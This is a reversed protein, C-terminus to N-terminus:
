FYANEAGYLKAALTEAEKIVGEPRSLFDLDEMCALDLKLCSEGLLKAMELNGQGQKHGPVHFSTTQEVRYNQLADYIPLKNQNLSKQTM